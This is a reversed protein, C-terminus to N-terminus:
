VTEVKIGRLPRGEHTTGITFTQAIQPYLQAIEDMWRLMEDYQHYDGFNYRAQIPFVQHTLVKCYYNVRNTTVQDSMRRLFSRLIDTEAAGLAKGGFAAATAPRPKEREIM